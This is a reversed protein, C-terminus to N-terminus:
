SPMLLRMVKWPLTAFELYAGASASADNEAEESGHAKSLCRSLAWNKLLEPPSYSATAPKAAGTCHAIAMLLSITRVKVIVDVALRIPAIQWETGDVFHCVDRIGCESLVIRTL